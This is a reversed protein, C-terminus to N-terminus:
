RLTKKESKKSNEISPNLALNIECIPNQAVRAKYTLNVCFNLLTGQGWGYFNRNSYNSFQRFIFCTVGSYNYAEQDCYTPFKFRETWVYSINRFFSAPAPYMESFHFKSSWSYAAGGETSANQGQLISKRHTTWHKDVAYTSNGLLTNRIQQPDPDPDLYWNCKNIISL